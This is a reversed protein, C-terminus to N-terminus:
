VTSWSQDIDFCVCMDLWHSFSLVDSTVSEPRTVFNDLVCTRVAIFVSEFRRLFEEYLIKWVRYTV